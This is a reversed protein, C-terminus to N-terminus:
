TRHSPRINSAASAPTTASSSRSRKLNPDATPLDDLSDSDVSSDLDRERRSAHIARVFEIPHRLPWYPEVIGRAHSMLTERPWVIGIAALRAELEDAVQATSKGRRNTHADAYAAAVASMRKETEAHAEALEEAL